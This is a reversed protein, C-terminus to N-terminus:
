KILKKVLFSWLYDFMVSFCDYRFILWFFLLATTLLEWNNGIAIAWLKLERFRWVSWILEKEIRGKKDVFPKHWTWNFAFKYMLACLQTCALSGSPAWSWEPMVLMIWSILITSCLPQAKHNMHSIAWNQLESKKHLSSTFGHSGSHVHTWKPTFQCMQTWKATSKTCGSASLYLNPAGLHVWTWEPM